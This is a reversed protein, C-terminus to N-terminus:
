EGKLGIKRVLADWKVIEGDVFKAAESQSSAVVEGGLTNFRAVVEPKRLARVSEHNLREDVARPLGRPTAIGTWYSFAYGPVGSEVLTPLEPLLPSRKETTLGIARLKGAKIHPLTTSIASFALDIQGALLDAVALAAGKYPVHIMEIGAITRFMEAALHAASGVGASGFTLKKTKALAVFEPVSKVPLSPHVVGTFPIRMAILNHQFDRAADYRPPTTLAKNAALAATAALGIDTLLLTYGDAPARAVIEAGIAGSAGTRNDVVVTQALPGALQEALIRATVDAAGGPAFPVILRLPRTPWTQAAATQAVAALVLACLTRGLAIM